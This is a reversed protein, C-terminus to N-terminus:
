KHIKKKMKNTHITCKFWGVAEFYELRSLPCSFASNGFCFPKWKASKALTAAGSKKLNEFGAVDLLIIDWNKIM